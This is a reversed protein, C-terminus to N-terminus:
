DFFKNFKGFEQNYKNNEAVIKEEKSITNLTKHLFLILRAMQIPKALFDIVNPESKIMEKTSDDITRGTMVIVPTKNTVPDSQLARLAEYGGGGPMMLDTLILDPQFQNALKLLGKGDMGTKVQFGELEMMTRMLEIIHEDDDIVLLRKTSPDAKQPPENTTM